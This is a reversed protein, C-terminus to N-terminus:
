GNEERQSLEDDDGDFGEVEQWPGGEQIAWTEGRARLCQAVGDLTQFIKGEFVRHFGITRFLYLVYNNSTVVFIDGMGGQLKRLHYVLVGIAGSSLFQVADLDFVLFRSGSKIAERVERDLVRSNEWGVKGGIQFVATNESRAITLKMRCTYEEGAHRGAGEVHDAGGDPVQEIDGEARQFDQLRHVLNEAFVGTM